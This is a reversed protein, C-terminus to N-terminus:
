LIPLEEVIVLEDGVGDRGRFVLTLRRAASPLEAELVVDGVGAGDLTRRDILRRKGDSDDVYWALSGTGLPLERVVARVRGDRARLELHGRFLLDLAAAAYEAIEPLLLKAYALHCREDLVAGAPTVRALASVEDSVLYGDHLRGAPQPYVTSPPLTGPSFFRRQTRDALGRGSPSHFLDLLRTPTGAHSPEPVGLRGYRAALFRGFPGGQREFAERYDNRVMAPDGLEELLRVIAGAALLSRATADDRDLRREAAGAREREDLFRRLGWDNESRPAQLWDLASRGTGDFNAGTFVGRISGIGSSAAAIRTRLASSDQDQHLGQGDRPDFFHNRSRVAPVAELVAGAVLWGLATQRGGEPAYGGEPDLQRLRQRLDADADGDGRETHLQLRLPEYLGMTRGLREALRRHLTSGFAAQETLGAHTEAELAQAPASVVLLLAPAAWYLIRTM